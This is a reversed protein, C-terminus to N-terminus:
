SDSVRSVVERIKRTGTGPWWVRTRLREKTKVMGTYGEHATDIVLQRLKKPVM